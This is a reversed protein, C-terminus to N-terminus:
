VDSEEGVPISGSLALGTGTVLRNSVSALVRWLQVNIEVGDRQVVFGDIPVGEARALLRGIQKVSLGRLVLRVGASAEPLDRSAFPESGLAGVIAPLLKELTERDARSLSSEPRQRELLADLKAEIATLRAELRLLTPDPPRGSM